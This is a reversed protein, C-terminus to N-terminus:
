ACISVSSPDLFSHVSTIPVSTQQCGREVKGVNAGKTRLVLWLYRSLLRYASRFSSYKPWSPIVLPPLCASPQYSCPVHTPPQTPPPFIHDIRVSKSDHMYVFLSPQTFKHTTLQMLLVSHLTEYQWNTHFYQMTYPLQVTSWHIAYTPKPSIAHLLANNTSPRHYKTYLDYVYYWLHVVFWRKVNRCSSGFTGTCREWTPYQNSRFDHHIYPVECNCYTNSTLRVPTHCLYTHHRSNEIVPSGWKWYRADGKKRPHV